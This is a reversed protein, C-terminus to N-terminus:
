ALSETCRGDAQSCSQSSLVGSVSTGCLQETITAVRRTSVGQVYMEALALTLAGGHRLGKELTDPYFDGTRVQSDAFDIEGM